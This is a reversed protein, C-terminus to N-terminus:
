LLVSPEPAAAGVDVGAGLGRVLRTSPEAARSALALVWRVRSRRRRRVPKWEPGSAAFGGLRHGHRGPSWLWGGCTPSVRLRRESKWAPGSAACVGLRRRLQLAVSGGGASSPGSRWLRRGWSPLSSSRRRRGSRGLGFNPNEGSSGTASIVLSTFPSWSAAELM